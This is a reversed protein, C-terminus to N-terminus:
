LLFVVFGSKELFAFLPESTGSCVKRGVNVMFFDLKKRLDTKPMRFLNKKYSTAISHINITATVYEFINKQKFLYGTCSLCMCEGMNWTPM